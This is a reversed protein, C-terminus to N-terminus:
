GAEGQVIDLSEIGYEFTGRVPFKVLLPYRQGNYLGTTAERRHKIVEGVDSPHGKLIVNAGITFGAEIAENIIQEMSKEM